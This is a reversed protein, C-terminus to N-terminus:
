KFWVTYTVFHDALIAFRSGCVSLKNLYINWSFKLWVLFFLFRYYLNSYFVLFRCKCLLINCRIYFCLAHQQRWASLAFMLFTFSSANLSLAALTMAWARSSFFKIFYWFQTLIKWVEMMVQHSLQMIVRDKKKLVPDDLKESPGLLNQIM